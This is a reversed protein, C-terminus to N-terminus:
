TDPGVIKVIEATTSIANSTGTAAFARDLENHAKRFAIDNQRRQSGCRVWRGVVDGRKGVAEGIRKAHQGWREL